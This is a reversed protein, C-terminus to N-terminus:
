CIKENKKIEWCFNNNEAKNNYEAATISNKGGIYNILKQRKNNSICCDLPTRGSDDKALIDAGADILLKCLEFSHLM